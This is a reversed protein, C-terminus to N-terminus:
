DRGGAALHIPDIGDADIERRAPAVTEDIAAKPIGCHDAIQENDYDPHLRMAKKAALFWEVKQSAM